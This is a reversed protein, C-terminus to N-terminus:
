NPNVPWNNPFSGPPANSGCADLARQVCHCCNNSFASYNTCQRMTRRMCDDRDNDQDATCQTGPHDPLPDPHVTSDDYFGLTSGDNFRLYCHRYGFTIRANLPRHCMSFLGSIDTETLPQSQSYSYVSPGDVFGLPDAQTYRGLSADYHRHWNYHLGAELQFWQGPFRADLTLAGSLSQVAGWPQYEASWVISKAATTMRIPRYLHDTHVYYTAPTATDVGDVVAIPRDITARSAATPAIEAEPLWIYERM